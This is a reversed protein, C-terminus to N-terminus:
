QRDQTARADDVAVALARADLAAEHGRYVDGGWAALLAPVVVMNLATSTALGTLIVLAMPAQIESGPEGLALALPLLGLGATVATMLIPALRERASQTVADDRALGALELDRTRTALLIGNRTAIGFLTIFGIISAISLVGGGLFLGIVGGALALPLNVLVIAARRASGLTALTILAIGAIAILGLGLLRGRAADAREFQGAYEIRVGPPPTVREGVRARVDEYVSHLDRGAVNATVVVRREVNERLIYNPGRDRRIEAFASLPVSAGLPTPVRTARVAEISARTAEDYRVVVDTVSGYEFVRSVEAGWLATGAAAAAAGASLGYQAAASRDVRVVVQPVDVAQEVSLDVLGPVGEAAASVRTAVERLEPLEAGIVKMSLAARQGSIMHDIRHSIPQGLTFQMGPVAALRERIDALLQEKSRPDARLRVDIESTEVGLVHEDREARGTRRATSVVAPDELLAREALTALADSQALSTGPLTVAAITLSGENFEPLFSRGAQGLYFVGTLVGALSVLVVARPRRLSLSLVPRYLADLWRLVVPERGSRVGSSFPLLLSCLAPTVTVAVLLSSAIAVLYAIALPQLLRGELGELFLLPLFVLMLIATASVISSRVERSADLVTQRVSPRQEPPLQARERLRRVVNEVDVIADDVLEGIAIALGGLTMTDLSLGLADLVIAAMLLSLPLALASILTPRLSWLFLLLVGVVLLAGDRLVGKLNEISRNIFDAQRFLDRHLRIGQRTLSPELQDLADDVRATVDLSDAGPQKVVSLVVASTANYSAAGRPVSAGLKVAAVDRVRVPYGDRLAITIDALEDESHARGLVRVVSEQGQGIVYGGPANNNGHDIAEGLQELTLGYRELRAPDAIVQYQRELGGLAVVNTVGRVALIRRRLEVDAVRRLELPDVTDSTVAVFAIEGMVSSPPSLIPTEAEPPLARLGQLRETVRQRALVDGTDWDFEVWVLSIGPASASRVRRVGIVGNVATEIPFTVLREIEEPAMGTSETVITVRPATLDPFVDVPMELARVLGLVSLLAALGLVLGRKALSLRLLFEIM